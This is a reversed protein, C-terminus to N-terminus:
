HGDYLAAYNRMMAPFSFEDVTLQRATAGHQARMVPDALYDGLAAALANPDGSPVLRGTEGDHVLEVNGGVRTAVVPLGSAMAELVTNSIGEALSPQVFVDLSRLLASIDDRHGPLWCLESIGADEAATLLSDRLAGDGIIALRARDALAPRARILKAFADVLGAHDKVPEIRGVTGIVVSEDSLGADLTARVASKDVALSFRETDVGNYIQRIRRPAIGVQEVLYRQLDRSVTVYDTVLPSHLRRLWKLKSNTGCLDNVDWGHEGHIRRRVGALMSPLLADLAGLNRTHVIDPRLRRFARYLRWLAAPDRGPRKHIEVIDVDAKQIRKRFDTAKDICVVAHRFRDEPLNNILNVVGNELGGVDLRFMVHAILRRQADHPNDNDTM